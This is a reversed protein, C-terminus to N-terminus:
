SKRISRDICPLFNLLYLVNMEDRPGPYIWTCEKKEGRVWIHCTLNGCILALTYPLRKQVFFGQCLTLLSQRLWKPGISANWCSSTRRFCNRCPSCLCLKGCNCYISETELSVISHFSSVLNLGKVSVTEAWPQNFGKTVIRVENGFTLMSVNYVEWITQSIPNSLCLDFIKKSLFM